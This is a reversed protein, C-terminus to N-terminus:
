TLPAGSAPATSLATWAAPARAHDGHKPTFHRNAARVVHDHQAAADAVPDGDRGLRQAVHRRHTPLDGQVRVQHHALVREQQM